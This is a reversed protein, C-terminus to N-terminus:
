GLTAARMVDSLPEPGASGHRVEARDQPRACGQSGFAAVPKGEADTLSLGVLDFGIRSFTFDFSISMPDEIL